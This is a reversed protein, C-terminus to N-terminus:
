HIWSPVVLNRTQDRGKSLPNLIRHQQSSQRLGGAVAGILDRAQSGGYAMPLSGLFPLFGFFFLRSNMSNVEGKDRLIKIKSQCSLKNSCDDM